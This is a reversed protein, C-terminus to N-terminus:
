VNQRARILHCLERSDSNSTPLRALEVQLPKIRDALRTSQVTSAAILAKHGVQIGQKVDGNRVYSIALEGLNLARSRGRYDDYGSLAQHLSSIATAANRPAFAALETHVVGTMASMETNDYFKTWTPENNPNARALESASRDLLKKAQEEDKLMAYSWAENACLVAVARESGCNQAALQGMQFWKLAENAERQHLYIRGIRYMICAMLSSDGAQNAFELATAYHSRASEYLGVDFSTWGAVAQLGGLAQFLRLRVEDKASAGLLRQAWSLQAIVADRCTGGGYQSDLAILARTTAEIQKVDAMGIQSPSPTQAPSPLWQGRDAGLAATGFMMATGHALLNRRKVSEDEEAQADDPPGVMSTATAPDYALGMYGRPIGLGGAIRVLVDYAMVQRGKLIESIESQSQGTLAAIYRQSIGVRRLLRYVSSIDRDALARKMEPENWTELSLRTDQAGTVNM